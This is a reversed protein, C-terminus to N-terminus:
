LNLFFLGCFRGFLEFPFRNMRVNENRAKKQRKTAAIEEDTFDAYDTSYETEAGDRTRSAFRCQVPVPVVWRLPNESQL